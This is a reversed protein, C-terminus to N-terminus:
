AKLGIRAFRVTVPTIAPNPTLVMNVQGGARSVSITGMDGDNDVTGYENVSINESDILISIETGYFKNIGGDTKSIAILYKAMRLETESFSDFTTVNEIGYIVQENNSIIGQGDNGKPGPQSVLGIPINTNPNSTINIITM